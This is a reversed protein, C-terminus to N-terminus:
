RSATVAFRNRGGAAFCLPDSGFTAGLPALPLAPYGEAIFM